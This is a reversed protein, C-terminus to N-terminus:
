MVFGFFAFEDHSPSAFGSTEFRLRSLQRYIVSATTNEDKERNLRRGSGVRPAVPARGGRM